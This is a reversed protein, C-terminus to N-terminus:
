QNSKKGKVKQRQFKILELVSQINFTFLVPVLYTLIIFCVANQLSYFPSFIVHKFHETGINTSYIYLICCKSTLPATRGKYPDNPTLPNIYDSESSVCRTSANRSRQFFQRIRSKSDHTVLDLSRRWKEVSFAATRWRSLLLLNLKLRKNHDELPLKLRKQSWGASRPLFVPRSEAGRQAISARVARLAGEHESGRESIQQHTGSLLSVQWDTKM